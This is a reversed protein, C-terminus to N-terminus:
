AVVQTFLMGGLFDVQQEALHKVETRTWDQAQLEWYTQNLMQIALVMQQDVWDIYRKSRCVVMREGEDSYFSLIFKRDNQSFVFLLWDVISRFEHKDSHMGKLLRMGKQEGSHLLKSTEVLCCDTIGGDINRVMEQRMSLTQSMGMM